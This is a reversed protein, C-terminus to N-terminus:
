PGVNLAAASKDSTGTASRHNKCLGLACFLRRAFSVSFAFSVKFSENLASRSGSNAVTTTTANNRLKNCWILSNKNREVTERYTHGQRLDAHHAGSIGAAISHGTGDAAMDYVLKAM